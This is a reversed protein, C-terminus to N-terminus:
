AARRRGDALWEDPRDRQQEALTVLWGQEVWDIVEGAVREFWPSARARDGVRRWLEGVLYTLEARREVPVDDYRALAREYERAAQRRFFREAEGDEEAMCCWAAHLLLEAIAQPGEGRRLATEVAAEYKESPAGVATL